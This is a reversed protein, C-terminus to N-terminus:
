IYRLKRFFNALRETPTAPVIKETLWIKFQQSIRKFVQQLREFSTLPPADAPRHLKEKLLERRVRKTHKILHPDQIRGMIIPQLKITHSM